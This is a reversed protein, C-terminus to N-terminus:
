LLDVEMARPPCASVCLECGNCKEADFLVMLSDKDFHLAETPCFSICAGCHVCKELNQKVRKSLAEVKLGQDKLFHIGRDFNEKTGYVELVLLGERRPFVRAKLINFSLDYDKVLRYVIPQDVVEAPYRIVIKKTYAEKTM